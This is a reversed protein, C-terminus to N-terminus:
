TVTGTVAESEPGAGAENSAVATISVEGPALGSVMLPEGPPKTGIPTKAGGNHVMFFEVSTANTVEATVDLQGVGTHLTLAPAGPPHQERNFLKETPLYFEGKARDGPFTFAVFLAAKTMEMQLAKRLDAGSLNSSKKATKAGLAANYVTLWASLYSGVDGVVGAGLDAQHATLGALVVGLENEIAGEPATTAFPKLGKPFIQILQPSDKGYQGVVKGHVKAMNGQLVERFDKKNATAGKQVALKVGADTTNAEVAALAASLANGRATLVAGPNVALMRGSWLSATAALETLSFQPDDFFDEFLSSLDIM